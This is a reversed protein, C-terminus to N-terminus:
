KWGVNMGDDGVLVSREPYARGGGLDGGSKSVWWGVSRLRITGRRCVRWRGRIGGYERWPPSCM